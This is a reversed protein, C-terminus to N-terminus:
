QSDEEGPAGSAKDQIALEERWFKLRREWHGDDKILWSETETRDRELYSRERRTIHLRRAHRELFGELGPPLRVKPASTSTQETPQVVSGRFTMPERGHLANVTVGLADAIRSLLDSDLTKKKGKEIKSVVPQSIGVLAGLATQDLGRSERAEMIRAGIVATSREGPELPEAPPPRPPAKRTGPNMGIEYRM